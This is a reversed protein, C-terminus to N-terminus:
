KLINNLEAFKNWESVRTNMLEIMKLVRPYIGGLKTDSDLTTNGNDWLPTYIYAPHDPHELNYSKHKEKTHLGLDERNLIDAYEKLTKANRWGKGKGLYEDGWRKDLNDLYKLYFEEESKFTIRKGTNPDLMGGFNNDERNLRYDGELINQSILFPILKNIEKDSFGKIKMANTLGKYRKVVVDFHTDGKDGVSSINYKKDKGMLSVPLNAQALQEPTADWYSRYSVSESPKQSEIKSLKNNRLKSFIRSLSPLLLTNTNGLGSYQNNLNGGYKKIPTSKLENLITEIPTTIQNKTPHQPFNFKKGLDYEITPIPDYAYNTNFLRDLGEYRGMNNYQFANITRGSPYTYTISRANEKTAKKADDIFKGFKFYEDKFNGVTSRLGTANQFAKIDTMNSTCYVQQIIENAAKDYLGVSKQYEFSPKGLRIAGIKQSSNNMDNQIDNYIARLKDSTRTRYGLQEARQLIQPNGSVVEVDGVNFQRNPVIIDMPENSLLRDGRLAEPRIVLYTDGARTSYNKHTKFSEGFTFNAFANEEPAIWVKGDKVEPVVGTNRVLFGNGYTGVDPVSTAKTYKRYGIPLKKYFTSENTNIFLPVGNNSIPTVSEGINLNNSSFADLQNEMHSDYRGFNTRSLPTEIIVEGSKVRPKYLQGLKYHLPQRNNTRIVGTQLADQLAEENIIRYASSDNIKPKFTFNDFTNKAKTVLKPGSEIFNLPNTFEAAITLYPHEEANSNFVDNVVFEGWSNNRGKSLANIGMDFATNFLGAVAGGAGGSAAGLVIPMLRNGAKSITNTIQQKFQNNEGEIWSQYKRPIQSLSVKGQKYLNNWQNRSLTATKISEEINGGSYVQETDQVGNYINRMDSLSSIGQKLFLSMLESRDKFSLDKWM